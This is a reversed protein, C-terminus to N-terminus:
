KRIIEDIKDRVNILYSFMKKHDNREHSNRSLKLSVLIESMYKDFESKSIM